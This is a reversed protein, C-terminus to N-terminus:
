RKSITLREIESTFNIPDIIWHLALIVWSQKNVARGDLAQNALVFYIVEYFAFLFFPSTTVTARRKLRGLAAGM